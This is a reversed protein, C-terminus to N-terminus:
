PSCARTGVVSKASCEVNSGPGTPRELAANSSSGAAAIAQNRRWFMSLAFYTAESSAEAWCPRPSRTKRPSAAKTRTGSEPQRHRAFAEELSEVAHTAELTIAVRHALAKRTARDVLAALCVFGRAMPIFTTDLAWTQNASTGDHPNQTRVILAGTGPNGVLKRKVKM